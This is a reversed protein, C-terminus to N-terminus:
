GPWTVRPGPYNSLPKAAEAEILVHLLESVVLDVSIHQGIQRSIIQPVNADIHDTVSASQKRRNDRQSALVM